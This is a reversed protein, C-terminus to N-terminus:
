IQEYGDIMRGNSSYFGFNMCQGHLAYYLVTPSENDLDFHATEDFIADILIESAHMALIRESRNMDAHFAIARKNDSVDVTFSLKTRDSQRFSFHVVEDYDPNFLAIQITPLIELEAQTIAQM